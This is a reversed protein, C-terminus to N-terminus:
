RQTLVNAGGLAHVADEGLCPLLGVDHRAFGLHVPVHAAVGDFCQLRQRLAAVNMYGLVAADLANRGLHPSVAAHAAQGYYRVFAQQIAIANMRALDRDSPHVMMAADVGVFAGARAMEVKGGVASDLHHPVGM